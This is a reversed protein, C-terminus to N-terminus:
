AESPNRLLRLVQKVGWIIAGATLAVAFIATIAAYDDQTAEYPQVRLNLGEAIQILATNASTNANAASTTATATAATLAVDKALLADYEPKTLLVLDSAACTTATTISPLTVSVKACATGAANSCTFTSLPVVCRM